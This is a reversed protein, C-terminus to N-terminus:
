DVRATVGMAAFKAIRDEVLKESKQAMLGPLVRRLSKGVQAAAADWNRHAGGIPEPVIEDIIGFRLATEADNKLASAAVVKEDANRWLISACSEPSIVSYVSHALMMVYNAVGVGLAGGSGGEGIVVSVVPVELGAMVKLNRAIAEGQSREEGELGPFAGPTDIFTIVPKKFKQAFEFFRLAKRYGEPQPMGFNRKINEETNRGKQQAVVVVSQGDFEAIGCVTSPDDRFNRDGHLEVFDTFLREVYDLGYPRQPHRAVQTMQWHNLSGYTKKLAKELAEVADRIKNEEAGSEILKAAKQQLPAVSKEFDLLSVDLRLNEYMFDEPLRFGLVCFAASLDSPRLTWDLRSDQIAPM